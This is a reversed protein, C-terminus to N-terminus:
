SEDISQFQQQKLLTPSTLSLLSLLIPCVRNVISMRMWNVYMKKGQLRWTPILFRAHSVHHKFVLPNLLRFKFYIFFYVLLQFKIWIVVHGTAAEGGIELQLVSDRLTEPWRRPGALEWSSTPCQEAGGPVVLLGSAM